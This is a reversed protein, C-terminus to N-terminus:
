TVVLRLRRPTIWWIPRFEGDLDSPIDSSLYWAEEVEHGSIPMGLIMPNLTSVDVNDHSREVFAEGEFINQIDLVLSLRSLHMNLFNRLSELDM